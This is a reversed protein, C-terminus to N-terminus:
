EVDEYQGDEDADGSESAPEEPGIAAFKAVHEILRNEIEDAMSEGCGKPLVERFQRHAYSAEGRLSELKGATPALDVIAELKKAGLGKIGDLLKATPYDRWDDGPADPESGTASGAAPEPANPNKPLPRGDMIDALQSSYRNLLAQQGKLVENCEKISEKLGDIEGETEEILRSCDRIKGLVEVKAWWRRDEDTDDVAGIIEPKTTPEPEPDALPEFVEDVVYDASADTTKEASESAPPSDMVDDSFEVSEVSDDAVPRVTSLIM